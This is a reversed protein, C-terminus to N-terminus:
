CHEEAPLFQLSGSLKCAPGSEFGLNHLTSKVSPSRSGLSEIVKPVFGPSASILVKTKDANLQLFHGAM